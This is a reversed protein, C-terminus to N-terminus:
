IFSDRPLARLFAIIGEHLLFGDFKAIEGLGFLSVTVEIALEGSFASFTVTAKASNPKASLPKL